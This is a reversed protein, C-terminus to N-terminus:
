MMPKMTRIAFCCTVHCVLRDVFVATVKLSIDNELQVNLETKEDVCMQLADKEKDMCAITHRLHCIEDRACRNDNEVTVMDKELHVLDDQRQDIEEEKRSLKKQVDKLAHETQEQLIRPLLLSSENVWLSCNYHIQYCLVYFTFM